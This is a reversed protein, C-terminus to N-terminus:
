LKISYFISTIAGSKVVWVGLLKPFGSIAHGAKRGPSPSSV